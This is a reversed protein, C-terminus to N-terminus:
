FRAPLWGTQILQGGRRRTHFYGRGPPLQSPAINGLLAGETRDGSLVIGQAGLERMRQMAPEYLSRSAGGSTRAIIVRLGIDRAFPLYELLPALPNMGTAVLDYDDIIVFADPSSYWSRNRLQEPTVDPGPMRRSLSGALGELTESLAPASACYRSLHSEPVGQLHARRYDGMVIKAQQPTYRESIQKILLRLVASKGSESEGFVIFHPDTEFDVFVPALSSEDIGIAVGRDPHEFGKPLRDSPLLTPLLRVAPAHSGQWNDNIGRILIATAESLDETESSGDVRPLATMFHLKDPSLGRGPVAAPVNQAVKRDIESETPDGLRLEIRNQLMEKLAPRVETYRSATLIVHVGFGLGRTAIDTVTAELLEYDTKFTAWGDIVLFVDGWPQDPLLGAARRQRYAQISDINNTRFYEERANLIGQVESVTRRVKEADLRGAVGGVHALEEMAILGGGGFDLCYFQVEAPTHTLAFSSILSRLLTSKGSQPGGVFLGHGVGGSFDRYLVDRRQEFPKDVLGVPVNLQGAGPYGPQTLGRGEVATLGLLLEDLTPAQDLPPLWIQHALPGQNELRNLIVDMPSDGDAAREDRGVWGSAYAARFGVMHDMDYRLYGSGPVSPLHYADPVGLVARSEEASFTRLGM